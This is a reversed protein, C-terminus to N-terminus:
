RNLKMIEAMESIRSEYFSVRKRLDAIELILRESGLSRGLNEEYMRRLELWFGIPHGLITQKEVFEDVLDM